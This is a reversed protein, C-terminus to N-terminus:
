IRCRAAKRQDPESTPNAARLGRGHLEVDTLRAAGQPCCDSLALAGLDKASICVAGGTM